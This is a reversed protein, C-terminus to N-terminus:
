YVLNVLSTNDRLFNHVVWRFHTANTKSNCTIKLYDIKNSALITLTYIYYRKMLKCVHLIPFIFVLLGYFSLILSDVGNDFIQVVIQYNWSTFELIMNNLLSFYEWSYMRLEEFHNCRMNNQRRFVKHIEIFAWILEKKLSKWIITSDFNCSNRLISNDAFLILYLQFCSWEFFQNKNM